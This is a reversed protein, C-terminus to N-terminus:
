RSRGRCRRSGRRSPRRRTVQAAPASHGSHAIPATTDGDEPEADEPLDALPGAVANRCPASGSGGRSPRQVDGEAGEAAHDAREIAATIGGAACRTRPYRQRVHVGEFPAHDRDGARGAPEAGDDGGARRLRRWGRASRGRGPGARRARRRGRGRRPGCRRGPRPGARRPRRARSPRRREGLAEAADVPEQMQDAAPLAALRERGSREVVVLPQVVEEHARTIWM